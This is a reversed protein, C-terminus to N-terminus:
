LLPWSRDKESVVRIEAPWHIGLAPDDYRLGAACETRYYEGMLYSVETHDELTLFGHAFSRPIFLQKRNKETLEVGYQRLYTPSDQRLDVIVDFISGRVCEVLKPEAAPEKQFHMGRLTGASVNFSTNCQVVEFNIGHAEFERRCYTRAFWGREDGIPDPTIIWAGNLITREFQM